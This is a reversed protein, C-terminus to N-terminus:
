YSENVVSGRRSGRSVTNELLQQTQQTKGMCIMHRVSQSLFFILDLLASIIYETRSIYIPLLILFYFENVPM